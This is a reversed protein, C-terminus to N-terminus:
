RNVRAFDCANMFSLRCAAALHLDFSALLKEVANIWGLGCAFMLLTMGSDM